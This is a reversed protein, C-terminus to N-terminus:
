PTKPLSRTATREVDARWADVAEQWSRTLPPYGAGPKFWQFSRSRFTVLAVAQADFYPSPATVWTRGNGLPGNSLSRPGQHPRRTAGRLPLTVTPASITMKVVYPTPAVRVLSFAPAALIAQLAQRRSLM